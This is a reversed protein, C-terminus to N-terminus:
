STASGPTTSPRPRRARAPVPAPQRPVVVRRGLGQAVNAVVVHTHLHPDLARSTRHLFAGAALGTADLRVQEWRSQPPRRRRGTGPLRHRRGGGGRPRSRGRRGDRDPGAPAPHEGVEPRLLHSRLRGDRRAAGACAGRRQGPGPRGAARRVRTRRRHRALGLDAAARGGWVGPAEGALRTGEARGPVLDDVYYAHGGRHLVHIKLVGSRSALRRDGGGASDAAGRAGTSQRDRRRRDDGRGRHEIEVHVRPLATTAWRPLRCQSAEEHREICGVCPQPGSLPVGVERGAASGYRRLIRGAADGALEGTRRRTSSGHGPAWGSRAPAGALGHRGRVGRGRRRGGVPEPPGASPISEVLWTSAPELFLRVRRNDPGPCSCPSGRNARSRHPAPPRAHRWLPGRDSPPMCRGAPRRSRAPGAAGRLHPRGPVPAHRRGDRVLRRRVLSGRGRLPPVTPHGARHGPRDLGLLLDGHLPAGGRGGGTGRAAAAPQRARRRGGRGRPGARAQRPRPVPGRREDSGPTALLARAAAALAFGEHPSLRRPRALAPGLRASVTTDTVVIEMLQDPTYPPVGCCAAM